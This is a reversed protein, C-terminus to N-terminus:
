IKTMLSSPTINPFPNACFVHDIIGEFVGLGRSFIGHTVYLCVRGSTIARLKPALETFTRGGDCIDDVILFDATSPDSIVRTQTIQGTSPDRVKSASIFELGLRKACEAIKKAAGADPAVLVTGPRAIREVFEAVHVNYARDLLALAVDSHVDWVQVSAYNQANIIECFVKLSLAEGAACVRDQRAYPLYPMKLRVKTGPRGSRRIADTLLLLEFVAASTFLNATITLDDEMVWSTNAVRVHEEGGHFHVVDFPVPVGSVTAARLFDSHM